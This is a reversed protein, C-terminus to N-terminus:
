RDTTLPSMMAVPQGASDMEMVQGLAQRLLVRKAEWPMDSFNMPKGASKQNLRFCWFGNDVEFVPSLEHPQLRSLQQDLPELPDLFRSGLRGGLERTAGQSVRAAVLAFDEGALLRGRAASCRNEQEQWRETSDLRHAFCFIGRLEVSAPPMIPERQLQALARPVAQRVAAEFEQRREGLAQDLEAGSLPPLAGGLAKALIERL